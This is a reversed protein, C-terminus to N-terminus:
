WDISTFSPSSKLLFADSYAFTDYIALGCMIFLLLFLSTVWLADHDELWRELGESDFFHPDTM